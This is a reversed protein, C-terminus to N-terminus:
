LSRDNQTRRFSCIAREVKQWRGIHILDLMDRACPGYPWKSPCLKVLHVDRLGMLRQPRDPLIWFSPGPGDHERSYRDCCQALGILYTRPGDEPDVRV